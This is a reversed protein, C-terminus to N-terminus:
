ISSVVTTVLTVDAHDDRAGFQVTEEGLDKGKGELDQFVQDKELKLVDALTEVLALTEVGQHGGTVKLVKFFQVLLLDFGFEVSLQEHATIRLASSTQRRSM